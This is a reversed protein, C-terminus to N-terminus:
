PKRTFYGPRGNVPDDIRLWTKDATSPDPLFSGEGGRLTTRGNFLKQFTAGSSLDFDHKIYIHELKETAASSDENSFMENFNTVKSTDFNSIDLSRLKKTKNFMGSMNTVNSTNFSSLNLEEINSMCSFMSSMDKVKSTDFNSLDLSEIASYYFMNQMHTVKQTNFHRIDLSKLSHTNQFMNGMFWVNSTNFSSINLENLSYAEMFMANMYIVNRTDFSSLDLKKIWTKFFLRGMDTVNSTNFRSFDISKVEYMNAFMFNMNTVKSSDFPKLDLNEVGFYSFMNKCDPNLYLKEAESYYYVTQTDKDLWALVARDSTEDIELHVVTAGEPPAVTSHEFKKIDNVVTLPASLLSFIKTKFETGTILNAETPYENTVTSFIVKNQYTGTPLNHGLKIGIAFCINNGLTENGSSIGYHTDHVSGSALDLPDWEEPEREPHEIECDFSGAFTNEAFDALHEVGVGSSIMNISSTNSSDHIDTFATKEVDVYTGTGTPNNTKVNLYMPLTVAHNPKSLIDSSHLEINSASLLSVSLSPTPKLAYSSQVEFFLNSLVLSFILITIKFFTDQSLFLKEFSNVLFSLVRVGTISLKKVCTIM